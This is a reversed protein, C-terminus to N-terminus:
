YRIGGLTPRLILISFILIVITVAIGFVRKWYNAKIQYERAQKLEEVSKKVEGETEDITLYLSDIKETNETVLRDIQKILEVIQNIKQVIKDIKQKRNKAENLISKASNSGLAFASELVSTATEPDDLEKLQKESADPCAILYTEKMKQKEKLKFECQVSHYNKLCAGLKKSHNLLHTERMDIVYKNENRDKMFQTEEQASAIWDKIDESLGTIASIITEVNSDLNCEQDSTLICTQKRKMLKRLEATLKEMNALDNQTKKCQTLFEM